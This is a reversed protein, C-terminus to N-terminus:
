IREERILNRLLERILESAGTYGNEEAYKKTEKWLDRSIYFSRVFMRIYNLSILMLLCKLEYLRLVRIYECLLSRHIYECFQSFQICVIFM